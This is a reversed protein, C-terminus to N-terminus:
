CTQTVRKISTIACRNLQFAARGSKEEIKEDTNLYKSKRDVTVRIFISHKGTKNVLNNKNIIARYSYGM